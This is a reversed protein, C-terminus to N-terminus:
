AGVVSREAKFVSGDRSALWERAEKLAVGESSRSLIPQDVGGPIPHKEYCVFEGPRSERVYLVPESM